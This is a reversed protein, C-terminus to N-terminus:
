EEFFMEVLDKNGCDDPGLRQATNYKLLTPIGKLKFKDLTRFENNPDKWVARGGVNCLIFVANSDEVKKLCEEIVPEARVCDPCWSQGFENKEGSCLIYINSANKNKQIEKMLEAMGNCQFQKVAQEM